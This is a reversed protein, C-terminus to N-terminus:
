LAQVGYSLFGRRGAGNPLMQGWRSARSWLIPLTLGGLGGLPGANVM